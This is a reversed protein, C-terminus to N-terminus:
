EKLRLTHGGRDVITLGAEKCLGLVVGVEFQRCSVVFLYAGGHDPWTDLAIFSESIPQVVITGNPGKCGPCCEPYHWEAMHGVPTMGIAKVVDNVFGRWGEQDMDGALSLALMHANLGLDSVM